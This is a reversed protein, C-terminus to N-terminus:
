CQHLQHVRLGQSVHHCFVQLTLLYFFARPPRSIRSIKHTYRSPHEGWSCAVSLLLHPCQPHSDTPKYIQFPLVLPSPCEKPYTGSSSTYPLHANKSTWRQTNSVADNAWSLAAPLPISFPPSTPNARGQGGLHLGAALRGKRALKTHITSRCKLTDSTRTKIFSHARPVGRSRIRAYYTFVQQSQSNPVPGVYGALM